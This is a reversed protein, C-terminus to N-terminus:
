MNRGVPQRLRIVDHDGRVACTLYLPIANNLDKQFQTLETRRFKLNPNPWVRSCGLAPRAGFHERPLDRKM